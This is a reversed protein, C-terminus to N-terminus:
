CQLNTHQFLVALQPQGISTTVTIRYGGSGLARLSTSPDFKSPRLGSIESIKVPDEVLQDFDPAPFPPHKSWNERWFASGRGWLRGLPCSTSIPWPGEVLQDFEWVPAQSGQWQRLLRIGLGYRNRDM